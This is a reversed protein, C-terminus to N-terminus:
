REPLSRLDRSREPAVGAILTTRTCSERVRAACPGDAQKMLKVVSRASALAPQFAAWSAILPTPNYFESYAM